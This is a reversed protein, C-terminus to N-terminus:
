ASGGSRTMSATPMPTSARITASIPRDRGRCSSRSRTSPCGGSTPSTPFTSNGIDVRVQAPKLGLRDAAIQTLITYTGTGLDQSAITVRATGDTLLQVRASSPSQNAPYTATAMGWGVLLRGNKM